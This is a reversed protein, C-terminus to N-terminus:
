KCTGSGPKGKCSNSCCQSGSSCSSGSPLCGGGSGPNLFQAVNPYTNAFAGDVTANSAADCSDNVNTGCAGYLQGVIQGAANVVPSGSSGGETGGLTDTSYIFRGRPLTSCTGKATDVRQESYAQPAGSPHSIRYLQLGNTSAVPSATWGLYGAIGNSTAPASALRLLTYDSSSNSALLTSGVTDGPNSYPQACNPNSCTTTYDFFTELSSAERSRGICHHATLFYPIVSTTVNDAVLGGTCIFNSGGSAFLMTAVAEKATNVASSSSCAANVVCSENYSCFAKASALAGLDDPAFVGQANYRPLVFRKGIVAVEDIRLPPVRTGAAARLQLLLREGFVTNTFLDGNGNPGRGTYPGFAQGALNYVFLEAGEPLDLGTVHARLATAGPVRLAATWVFGGDGGRAAGARLNRTGKGIGAFDVTVGVPKNIGVFYRGGARGPVDIGKREAASIAVVLERRVGQDVQGAALTKELASMGVARDAPDAPTGLLEPQAEPDLAFPLAASAAGAVSLALVTCLFVSLRCKSM